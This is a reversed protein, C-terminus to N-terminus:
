SEKKNFNNRLLFYENLPRDDTVMWSTEKILFSSINKELQMMKKLVEKENKYVNHSPNYEWEMLDKRAREPLRELMDSLSPTQIPTMSALFHTGWGEISGFARVYPFSEHIARAIAGLTQSDSRPVWQQLIGGPKLRSKIAGYFEWSYLLSSGAASVPPPPDITIVDFQKRTRKLFRRGDDIIIHGNPNRMFEDADSFFYPFVKKVSPVLEIATTEMSWSMLSRFTTGAGFCIVLGSVPKDKLHLTPWHAMIKTVPTLGTIGIGNVLLRKRMGKGFAITTATHDRRTVGDKAFNAGKWREEYTKGVGLSFILFIVTLTGTAFRLVPTKGSEKWYVVFLALFPAALFVMAHRTGLLSLIAYSAVLPGLICGLINIAYAKGAQSPIGESYQDILKPTLYGLIGCFPFISLLLLFTGDNIRPDNIVIPLFASVSLWTILTANSRVRGAGIDRRYLFSGIWTALLYASVLYAFAYVTTHLVPTFARVWVVELAMSVFGTTFLIPSILRTNERCVTSGVPPSEQITEEVPGKKTYLLGLMVSLVAIFFNMCGAILLTQKFGFLEILVVATLLAGCMAGIVNALYLFSFSTKHYHGSDKFYDMMVPFTLGMLTCWPLIALAILVGSLLLYSFSNMEGFLLLYTESISFLWPVVFAGIGVLFEIGAYYFIPSINTRNSVVSIWKGGAWSGLALGLMFVSIVVSMVPTIVGFAAFGLRLWVVQYLLGCFGSLFFLLFPLRLQILSM